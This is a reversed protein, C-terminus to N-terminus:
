SQEMISISLPLGKDVNAKDNELSVEFYVYGYTATLDFGVGPMLDENTSSCLECTSHQSLSHAGVSLLGFVLIVM